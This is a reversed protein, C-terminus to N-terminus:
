RMWDRTELDRADLSSEAESVGRGDLFGMDRQLHSTFEGINVYRPRSRATSVKSLRGLMAGALKLISSSKPSVAIMNM